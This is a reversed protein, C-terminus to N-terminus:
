HYEEYEYYFQYEMVTFLQYDTPINTEHTITIYM